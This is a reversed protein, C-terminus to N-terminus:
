SGQIKKIEMRWEIAQYPVKIKIRKSKIETNLIEAKMM